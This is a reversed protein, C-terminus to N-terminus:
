LNSIGMYVKLIYNECIWLEDQLLVQGNSLDIVQWIGNKIEILEM